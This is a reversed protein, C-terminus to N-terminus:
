KTKKPKKKFISRPNQSTTPFLIVRPTHTKTRGEPSHIRPSTTHGGRRSGTTGGVVLDYRGMRAVAPIGMEVIMLGKDVGPQKLHLYKDIITTGGKKKSIDYKPM